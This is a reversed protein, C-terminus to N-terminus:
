ASVEMRYDKCGFIEAELAILPQAIKIAEDPTIRGDDALARTIEDTALDIYKLLDREGPLGKCHGLYQGVIKDLLTSLTLNRNRAEAVLESKDDPDLKFGAMEIRKKM